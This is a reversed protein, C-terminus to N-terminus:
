EIVEDARAILSRPVPLGIAKATKLNIVLDFKSPQQIPLDGPSAGKLILDVYSVAQRMVEPYRPTLVLVPELDALWQFDSVALIKHEVSFKQLLPATPWLGPGTTIFLAEARASLMNQLAAPVDEPKVIPALHM